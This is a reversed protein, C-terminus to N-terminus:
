ASNLERSQGPGFPNFVRFVEVPEAEFIAEKSWVTDRLTWQCETERLGSLMEDKVDAFRLPVGRIGGHIIKTSIEVWEVDRLPWPGDAGELYGDVPMIFLLGWRGCETSDGDRWAIRVWCRLRSRLAILPSWYSRADKMTCCDLGFPPQGPEQPPPRDEIKMDSVGESFRPVPYLMPMAGGGIIETIPFSPRRGAAVFKRQYLM